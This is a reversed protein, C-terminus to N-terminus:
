EPLLSSTGSPLGLKSWNDRKILNSTKTALQENILRDLHSLHEWQSKPLKNYIQKLFKESIPPEFLKNEIMTIIRPIVRSYRDLSNIGYNIVEDIESDSWSKRALSVILAAEKYKYDTFNDPNVLKSSITSLLSITQKEPHMHSLLNLIGILQHNDEFCDLLGKYVEVQGKYSELSRYYEFKETKCIIDIFKILDFDKTTQYIFFIRGIGLLSVHNHLNIHTQIGQKLIAYEENRNQERFEQQVKTGFLLGIIHFLIIKIANKNTLRALLNISDTFLDRSQQVHKGNDERGLVGSWYNINFPFGRDAINSDFPLKDVPDYLFDKESIGFNNWREEAQNWDESNGLKGIKALESLEMLERANEAALLNLYKPKHTVSGDELIDLALRSGSLCASNLEDRDNLASCKTYISERLHEKENRAFCKGIAFLVVNRWSIIPIIEELRNRIQEDSGNMIAESAMFEQLSRVEFGVIDQKLGVLFVLRNAAAEIIKKTLAECEKGEHGEEELRSRVLTTFDEVSLRADTKGSRESQVQLLLGVRYHISDIDAKYDRLIDSAPIDREVERDYIIDYYKNFLSWRDKPAQGTKNLLVTMITVQLPSQMLRSTFDDKAARELRTIIKLQRENDNGYRLKLLRRAYHLAQEKSLPSLYVHNYYDTDFDQNYGQPRTTAVIMVDAYLEDVDVNFDQIASLVRDRNSSAPVEDLGDLVIFWPYNALWQRIDEVDIERSTRRRIQWAIYDLVSNISDNSALVAAFENLVIRLPFRRVTPFCINEQQCQFEVLSNFMRRAVARKRAEFNTLAKKIELNGIDTKDKLIAVRFLQCIFQGVTTKGGGPGGIVVWRGPTHEKYSWITERALNEQSRDIRLSSRDFKQRALEIIGAVINSDEGTITAKKTHIGAVPLDVFVSALPIKDESSHGAQELNAYLDSLLEKQLFSYIVTEFNPKNFTLLEMVQSLVDGPTIWAAYAKRIDANGDIFRCIKDYDWIDYDKLSVTDKYEDFVKYAKDKSGKELVSTLAVNTIFIYYEPKTRKKDPNAFDELEKKLQAIAWAGDKTTDNTPRQRFKAQFVVYGDWPEDNSNYNTKGRFTAERGGDTGDGFIITKPSVVRLAIAQILQEFSRPSLGTLEYDPM